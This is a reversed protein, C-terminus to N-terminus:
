APVEGAQENAVALHERMQPTLPDSSTFSIMMIDHKSFSMQIIFQPVDLHHKQYNDHSGFSKAKSFLTIQYSNPHNAQYFMEHYRM